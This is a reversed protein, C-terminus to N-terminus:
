SGPDWAHPMCKTQLMVQSHVVKLGDSFWQLQEPEYFFARVVFDKDYKKCVNDIPNILRTFRKPKSLSSQVQYDNFIKYRTEHFTLMIGDFIPYETFLREYRAVLWDWFGKKDMLVRGDAMFRDPVGELEHLWLWVKLDYKHAEDALMTLIGARKPDDFLEPVDKIMRHSYVVTNICYEPARKLADIVYAPDM